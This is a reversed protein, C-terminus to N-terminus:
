ARGLARSARPKAKEDHRMREAIIRVAESSPSTLADEARQQLYAVIEPALSIKMRTKRSM